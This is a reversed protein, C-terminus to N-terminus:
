WAEMGGHRWGSGSWWLCDAVMGGSLDPTSAHRCFPLLGSGSPTPAREALSAYEAAPRTPLVKAPFKRGGHRWAAVM